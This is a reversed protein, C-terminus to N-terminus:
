EREVPKGVEVWRVRVQCTYGKGPTLPPSYYDRYESTQTTKQGDFWVEADAPVRLRIQARHDPERVPEPSLYYGRYYDFVGYPSYGWGYGHGPFGYGGGYFGPGCGPYGGYGIGSSAPASSLFDLPGGM